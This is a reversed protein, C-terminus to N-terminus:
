SAGELYDAFDEPHNRMDHAVGISGAINNITDLADRLEKMVALDFTDQPMQALVKDIQMIAKGMMLSGQSLKAQTISTKAITAGDFEVIRSYGNGGTRYIRKSAM